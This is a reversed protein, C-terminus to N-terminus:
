NNGSYDGVFVKCSKCIHAPVAVVGVTAENSVCIGDQKWYGLGFPLLKSVWSISNKWDSQLYGKEMERGCKPCKMKIGGQIQQILKVVGRIGNCIFVAGVKTLATISLM